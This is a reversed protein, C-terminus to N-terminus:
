EVVRLTVEYDNPFRMATESVDIGVTLLGWLNM